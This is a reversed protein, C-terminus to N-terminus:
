ASPKGQKVRRSAAQYAQTRESGYSDGPNLLRALRVRQGMTLKDVVAQQEPIYKQM